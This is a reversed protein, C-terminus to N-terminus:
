PTRAEGIAQVAAAVLREASGKAMPAPMGYYRHADIVEYGGAGYEDATPFYGPCGDSYGVVVVTGSVARAIQEATEHFPEGPLAVLTLDGLELASVRGSWTGPLGAGPAEAWAIWQDLLARRAPEATVRESRWRAALEAPSEADLVDLDVDIPVSVLRGPVGDAGLTQGDRARLAATGLVAGIRAAEGPSRLPNGGPAYSSEATHGTNLDGCAGTCFVAISRPSAAEVAQRLAAVYDGSVLTNAGDLVVPHCPYSLLWAIEEGGDVSEFVVATLPPDVSRDPHRRNRAVGLGGTTAFRAVSPRRAARARDVARVAALEIEALVADASGGLRGPMVCPGAHTHTAAVIVDGGGGVASRIRACSDEHLGCVDVTVISAEDLALARVTLPDLTGTSGSTRAAFGALPTGMPVAVTEVAAGVAFHRPTM